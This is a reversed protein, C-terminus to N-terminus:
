VIRHNKQSIQLCEKIEEDSCKYDGSYNRRFIIINETINAKTKLSIAHFEVKKYRRIKEIIIFNRKQFIIKKVFSKLLEKTHHHKIM